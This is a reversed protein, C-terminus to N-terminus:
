CGLVVHRNAMIASFEEPLSDRLKEARPEIEFSIDKRPILQQHPFNTLNRANDLNYFRVLNSFFHARKAEM